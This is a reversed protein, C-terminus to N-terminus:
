GLDTHTATADNFRRKKIIRDAQEVIAEAAAEPELGYERGAIAACSRFGFPGTGMEAIWEMIEQATEFSTRSDGLDRMSHELLRAQVIRIDQQTWEAYFDEPALLPEGFDLEATYSDTVKSRHLIQMQM